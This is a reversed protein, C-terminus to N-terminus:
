TWQAMFADLSAFSQQKRVRSLHTYIRLTMDSDAHGMLYQATKLDVGADYLLTCYTHRLDHARILFVKEPAPKKDSRRGPQIPPEGNLIRTMANLWAAWGRTFASSTMVGTEQPSCVYATIRESAALARLLPPPIPIDRIGAFSKPMDSFVAENGEFHLAIRVHILKADLNVDDWRLALAEGRRLGCFLMLMVWLGVRHVPWNQVIHAIEWDELARHSEEGANPWRIGVCPNRVIIGDEQASLFIRNMVSKMKTVYSKSYDSISNAFEQMDSKRIEIMPRNGLSEHFKDISTKNTRLTTYSGQGYVAFWKASWQAATMPGTEPRYGEKLTRAYDDRKQKAKGSPTVM